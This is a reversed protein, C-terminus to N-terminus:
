FTVVGCLVLSLHSHIESTHFSKELSNSYFFVSDSTPLQTTTYFTCESMDIYMGHLTTFSNSAELM